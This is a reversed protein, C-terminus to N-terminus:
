NALYHRSRATLFPEAAAWGDKFLTDLFNKSAALFDEPVRQGTSLFSVPLSSAVIQQCIAAYARTEDLKTLILGATSLPNYAEFIAQLDEKKATASLVLYPMISPCPSFWAQLEQIHAQDYPSKGATDIIILDKDQHRKLASTLDQQRLVIECPLRMIQAYTRLQDTAGIRYCDMSLLAVKSGQRLTHWAALKAATTTKGVGTAGVLAIVTPADSHAKDQNNSRLKEKHDNAQLREHPDSVRLRGQPDSVQIKDIIEDRWERVKAPDIQPPSSKTPKLSPDAPRYRVAPQKGQKAGQQLLDAFRLRLDHSELHPQNTGSQRSTLVPPRPAIPIEEHSSRRVAGYGYNASPPTKEDSATELEDLDYDMAAVVEIRSRGGKAEPALSRTALIIADEGLERKVMSMATQTDKAEFRKIRM